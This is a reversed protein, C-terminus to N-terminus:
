LRDIIIITKKTFYRKFYFIRQLSARMDEFILLSQIFIAFSFSLSFFALFVIEVNLNTNIKQTNTKKCLLTIFSEATADSYRM